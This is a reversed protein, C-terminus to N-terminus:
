LEASGHGILVVLQHSIMKPKKLHPKLTKPHPKLIYEVKVQLKSQSPMKFNFYM